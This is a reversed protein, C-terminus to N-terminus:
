RPGPPPTEESADRRARRLHYLTLGAVLLPLAVGHAVYAHLLRSGDDGAASPVAPASASLTAIGWYAQQDWRLLYGSVALGLTLLMLAVGVSWNARRPPAYAGRVAVQLLHLWVVIVTAHAGWYHLGRLASFRSIERLDVLDLYATEVTPRYHFMLGLGTLAECVLLCVALHGLRAGGRDAEGEAPAVTASVSSAPEIRTEEM